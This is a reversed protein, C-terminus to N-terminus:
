RDLLLRIARDYREAARGDLSHSHFSQKMAAQRGRVEAPDAQLDREITDLLEDMSAAHSGAREAGDPVHAYGALRPSDIYVVPRDLVYFDTAISSWDTILLDVATLLDNTEPYEAQPVSRIRPFEGLDDLLTSNMHLRFIMTAGIRECLSNLARLFEGAQMGFPIEGPEGRERWTPAYLVIPGSGEVHLEERVRPAIEDARRFRDLRAYGTLVLQDERFGFTDRYMRRARESSVFCADYSHALKFEKPDHRKFGVGHGVDVFRIGPRLRRLLYLIGPGHSTMICSAGLLTRMDGLRTVLLIRRKWTRVVTEYERRDITAYYVDYPLDGKSEAYQYFALLNGSLSHNGTMIVCPRRGENRRRGLASLIWGALLALLFKVHAVYCSPSRRDFRM